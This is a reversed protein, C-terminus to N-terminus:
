QWLRDMIAHRSSCIHRIYVFAWDTLSDRNENNNWPRWSPAKLWKGNRTYITSEPIDAMPLVQLNSSNSNWSPFIVGFIPELEAKHKSYDNHPHCSFLSRVPMPNGRNTSPQIPPIKAQRRAIARIVELNVSTDRAANLISDSTDDRHQLRAKWEPLSALAAV